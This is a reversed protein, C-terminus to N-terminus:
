QLDVTILFQLFHFRKWARTLDWNAWISDDKRASLSSATTWAYKEWEFKTWSEVWISVAECACVLSVQVLQFRQRPCEIFERCKRFPAIFQTPEDNQFILSRNHCRKEAANVLFTSSTDSAFQLYATSLIEFKVLINRRRLIRAKTQIFM